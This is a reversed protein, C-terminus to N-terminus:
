IAMQITQFACDQGPRISRPEKPPTEQAIKFRIYKMINHRACVWNWEQTCKILGRRLFGLYGPNGVSGKMQGFVSEIIVKRRRYADRGESTSVVHRMKEITSLAAFEEESIDPAPNTPTGHRQRDPPILAKAEMAEMAIANEQSYYGPDALVKNPKAGMLAVTQEVMPILQRKDNANQSLDCALIVQHNEDVAAQANYAQLFAGDAGKMIRSDPDTFSRQASDKPTPDIKPKAGVLPKDSQSEKEARAKQAAEAAAQAEAELVAKAESIKALRSNRRRLEDPLKPGSEDPGFLVDDAADEERARRLYGEIEAKLRAEEEVMRGYSMAKRKSANAEIKSGDIALNVMGVMGSRECLRVSQEFLASLAEGHRLRFQNISRFDPSNGAVIIRAGVDNRCLAELKRSSYVHLCWGYLLLSTLMVPSYAPAGRGDTSYGSLFPQLDLLSVVDLIQYALHDEPLWDRPSPPMLFVQDPAYNRFEHAM